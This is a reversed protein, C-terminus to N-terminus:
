RKPGGGSKKKPPQISMIGGGHKWFDDDKKRGWGGTQGGGGGSSIVPGGSGLFLTTVAEWTMISMDNIENTVDKLWWEYVGGDARPRPVLRCGAM